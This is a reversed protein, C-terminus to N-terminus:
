TQRSEEVYMYKGENVKLTVKFGMNLSKFITTLEDLISMSIAEATAHPYDIVALKVKFPGKICLSELDSRPVILSYRYREIVGELIDRLKLFDLVMSSKNLEGEVCVSLTFTHGHLQPVNNVPTYHAAEFTIDDICAKM